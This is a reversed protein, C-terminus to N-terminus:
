NSNEDWKRYWKVMDEEPLRVLFAARVALESLSHMASSQAPKVKIPKEWASDDDAQAVVIRDIQKESFPKTKTRTKM